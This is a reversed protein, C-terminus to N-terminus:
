APVSTLGRFMELWADAAADRDRGAIDAGLPPGPVDWPKAQPGLVAVQEDLLIHLDAYRVADHHLLHSVREVDLAVCVARGVSRQLERWEARFEPSMSMQLPHTLDATYAEHADHLLGALALDRRPTVPLEVLGAAKRINLPQVYANLLWRAVHVSHEAVSYHVDTHGNYRCIGGLAYAVDQLAVGEFTTLDFVHGHRTQLWPNSTEM